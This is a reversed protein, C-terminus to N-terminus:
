SSNVAGIHNCSLVIIKLAVQHGAQKLDHLSDVLLCGDGLWRSYTEWYSDVDHSPNM